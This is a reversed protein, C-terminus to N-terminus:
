QRVEDDYILLFGVEGHGTETRTGRGLGGTEGGCWYCKVM